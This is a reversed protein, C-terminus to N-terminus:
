GLGSQFAAGGERLANVLKLSAHHASLAEAPTCAEDGYRIGPTCQIAAVLASFDGTVGVSAVKDALRSLDHTFPFSGGSLAIAAKLTKEAAQLSAWKSEGARDHRDMLATVATAVDSRASSLLDHATAELTYSAYLAAGFAKEVAELDADSLRAAKRATMHEILQVINCLGPGLLSVREPLFDRTIVFQISGLIRPIGLAYLDGDLRVVTRGPKMDVKLRDGYTEEYWRSIATGLPAYPALEPPLRSPDQDGIPIPVGHLLSVERGAHIPRDEIGYGDRGLRADIEQMMVEFAPGEHPVTKAATM